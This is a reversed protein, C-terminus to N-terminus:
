LWDCIMQCLVELDKVFVDIGVVLKEIVMLDVVLDIVFWIVDILLVIVVEVVGVVFRCLLDGYDVDLKELLDLLIILCDCGVLVEIQVMLCFLVGMVVMLLGCCKFEVYVGCVFVVGLDDDIMVLIQGNVVYWDLICGVFLLILFVGVESCVLVQILNFILMLNCDIGESQLQCVVEVGVWIVVIKILVKSCLVGVVEYMVIFQCVKIVMVVMDYVQDVDVEILVWGLVLMSLLMGVGVIFCDVVVYVIIECEGIQECGWVLECEILDVYVLLDLVKKVLMLNIMCDVLKLCKIVEYDGIDVVVVFFDCLQIFKFLFVINM